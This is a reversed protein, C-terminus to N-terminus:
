PAGGITALAADCRARELVLDTRDQEETTGQREVIARENAICTLAEVAYASRTEPTAAGCGPVHLLAALMACAVLPVWMGMLALVADEIQRQTM